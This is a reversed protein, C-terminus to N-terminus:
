IVSCVKDDKYNPAACTLEAVFSFNIGKAFWLDCSAKAGRRQGNKEGEKGEVLNKASSM